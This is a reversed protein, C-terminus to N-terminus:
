PPPSPPNRSATTSTRPCTMPAPRPPPKHPHRRRHCLVHGPRSPSSSPGAAPSPSGSSSPSAPDTSQPSVVHRSISAEVYLSIIRVNSPHLRGPLETASIEQKPPLSVSFRPSLTARQSVPIPQNSAKSCRTRSEPSGFRAPTVQVIDGTIPTPWISNTQSVVGTSPASGPPLLPISSSMRAPADAGRSKPSPAMSSSLLGKDMSFAEMPSSPTASSDNGMAQPDSAALRETISGPRLVGCSLWTSPNADSRATGHPSSTAADPPPTRVNATVLVRAGSDPRRHRQAAVAPSGAAIDTAKGLWSSNGANWCYARLKPDEGMVGAPGTSSALIVKEPGDSEHSPSGSIRSALPLGRNAAEPVETVKDPVGPAM